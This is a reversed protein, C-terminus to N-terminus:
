KTVGVAEATSGMNEWAGQSELPQTFGDAVEQHKTVPLIKTFFDALNVTGDVKIFEVVKSDKMERIWAARLDLHKMRGVGLTDEAFSKAASADVMVPVTDPMPIGLEEGVNRLHIAQKVGESLGHLEAEASSCVVGDIFKTVWGILMGNYTIAVGLRSRLEHDNAYTGAHDSDCWVQLGSGDGPGFKIGYNRRGSLYRVLHKLAKACTPTPKACRKSLLSTAVAIDPHTTQALWLVEGLVTRFFSHAEDDLYDGMEAEAGIEKLLEKTIPLKTMNCGELGLQEILSDIFRPNSWTVTDDGEASMTMSLYDISQNGSIVTVDKFEFHEGLQEYFLEQNSKQDTTGEARKKTAVVPDDVYVSMRTGDSKRYYMSPANKAEEFEMNQEVETKLKHKWKNGAPQEGYIPGTLHYFTWEKTAQNWLRFLKWDKKHESYGQLYATNFDTSHLDYETRPSAAMMLRLPIFGPTPAYVDAAPLKNFKKLDQAVIRAKHRGDRKLTCSYRGKLCRKKQFESLAQLEESDLKILRPYNNGQFVKTTMANLEKDMAENSLELHESNLWVDWPVENAAACMPLVQGASAYEAAMVPQWYDTMLHHCNPIDSQHHWTTDTLGHEKWKLEYSYTDDDEQVHGVIYDPEFVISGGEGEAASAEESADNPEPESLKVKSVDSYKVIEFPESSKETWFAKPPGVPSEKLPFQGPFARYTKASVAPQLKWRGDIATYPMLRAAGPVKPDLGVFIARVARPSHKSSRKSKPVFLLAGTGVTVHNALEEQSCIRGRSQEEAATIGVNKQHDSIQSHNLLQSATSGIEDWSQITLEDFCDHDGEFATLSMASGMHQLIQHRNEILAGDTHRDVEGTQNVVNWEAFLQKTAGLFESGPDHKVAQIKYGTKGGPDTLAEIRAKMATFSKANTISDKHKGAEYEGYNTGHIIIDSAYRNGAASHHIMDLTDVNATALLITKKSAGKFASKDRMSAMLCHVCSQNLRMKSRHGGRNHDNVEDLAAQTEVQRAKEMSLRLKQLEEPTLTPILKKAATLLAELESNLLPKPKTPQGEGDEAPAAPEHGEEAPTGAFCGQEPPSLSSSATTTAARDKTKATLLFAEQWPPLCEGPPPILGLARAADSSSRSNVLSGLVEEKISGPPGFWGPNEVNPIPVFTDAEFNLGGLYESASASLEAQLHSGENLGTISTQGISTDQIQIQDAPPPELVPMDDDSEIATAFCSFYQWARSADLDSMMMLEEQPAISCQDWFEQNLLTLERNPIYSAPLYDLVGRTYAMESHGSPDTILKGNAHSAFQWNEVTRLWGESLLTTELYENIFCNKFVHDKGVLDAAWNLWVMGGATAVPYPKIARINCTLHRANRGIMSKFTGGDLLMLVSPRDGSESDIAGTDETSWHCMRRREIADHINDQEAEWATIRENTWGYDTLCQRWDFDDADSSITESSPPSNAMFSGDTTPETAEDSSTNEQNGEGAAGPQIESSDTLSQDQSLDSDFMAADIENAPTGRMQLELQEDIFHDQPQVGRNPRDSAILPPNTMMPEDSVEETSDDTDDSSSNVVGPVAVARVIGICPRINSDGCEDAHCAMPAGPYSVAADYYVAVQDVDVTEEVITLEGMDMPEQATRGFDAHGDEPDYAIVSYAQALHTQWAMAQADNISASQTTNLPMGAFSHGVSAQVAQKRAEKTGQGSIGEFKLASLPGFKAVDWPHCSKCDRFKSCLGSKVYEADKCVNGTRGTHMFHCETGDARPDCKNTERYIFCIIQGPPVGAMSGPPHINSHRGGGKGGQRHKPVKSVIKSQIGLACSQIEDLLKKADNPYQRTVLCVPVTLDGSRAPDEILKEILRLLVTCQLGNASADNPSVMKLRELTQVDRSFAEIETVLDSANNVPEKCLWDKLARSKTEDSAYEVVTLTYAIIKVITMRGCLSRTAEQYLKAQFRSDSGAFLASSLRLDFETDIASFDCILDSLAEDSAGQSAAKIAAQLKPSYPALWAQLTNCYVQLTDVNGQAPQHLGTPIKPAYEVRIRRMDAASTDREAKPSDQDHKPSKHRKAERRGYIEKVDALLRLRLIPSDIGLLDWVSKLVQVEQKPDLVNAWERGTWGDQHLKDVVSTPVNYRDLYESLHRPNMGDLDPATLDFDDDEEPSYAYRARPARYEDPPRPPEHPERRESPRQQPQGQKARQRDYETNAEPRLSQEREQDRVQSEQEPFLRPERSETM